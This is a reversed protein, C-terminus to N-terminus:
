VMGDVFFVVSQLAEVATENASDTAVSNPRNRGVNDTPSTGTGCGSLCSVLLAFALLPNLRTQSRCSHLSGSHRTPLPKNMLDTKGTTLRTSQDFPQDFWFKLTTSSAVDKRAADLKALPREALIENRRITTWTISWRM